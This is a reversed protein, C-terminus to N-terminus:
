EYFRKDANKKIHNVPTRPIRFVNALHTVNVGKRLLQLIKVKKPMDLSGYVNTTARYKTDYTYARLEPEVNVVFHFSVLRPVRM